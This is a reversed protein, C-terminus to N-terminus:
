GLDPRDDPSDDGAPAADARRRHVARGPEADQAADLRDATAQAASVAAVLAPLVPLRERTRQDMRSKRQSREKKRSLEEDRVPCPM